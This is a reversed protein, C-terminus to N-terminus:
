GVRERDGELAGRSDQIQKALSSRIESIEDLLVNCLKIQATLAMRTPTSNTQHHLQIHAEKIASLSHFLCSGNVHSVQEIKQM